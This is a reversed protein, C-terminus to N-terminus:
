CRLDAIHGPFAGLVLFTRVDSERDLDVDHKFYGSLATNRGFKKSFNVRSTVVRNLREDLNSSYDTFYTADSQFQGSAKINFSPSFTHNYAANLIWRTSMNEAAVSRDYGTIRTYKGTVYGDFVYRKRFSMPVYILLGGDEARRVTVRNESM